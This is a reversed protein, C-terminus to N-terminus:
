ETAGFNRLLNAIRMHGNKRALSLATESSKSKLTIDTGELTLLYEAIDYHGWQAAFMLPTLGDFSKQNMDIGTKDYITQVVSLQGLAISSVTAKYLTNDAVLNDIGVDDIM